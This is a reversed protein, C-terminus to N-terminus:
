TRWPAAPFLNNELYPISFKLNLEASIKWHFTSKNFRSQSIEVPDQLLTALFYKRSNGPFITFIGM